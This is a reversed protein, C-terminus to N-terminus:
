SFIRDIWRSPASIFQPWSCLVKLEEHEYDVSGLKREKKLWVLFDEESYRDVQALLDLFKSRKWTVERLNTIAHFEIFAIQQNELEIRLKGERLFAILEQSVKYSRLFAASNEENHWAEPELGQLFAQMPHNKNKVAWLFPRQGYDDALTVDAGHQVLYRVLDFDDNSAAVTVATPNYPFVLDPKRINPDIGQAIFFEVAQFQGKFVAKRFSKGGDSFLRYRKM